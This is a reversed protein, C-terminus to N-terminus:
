AGSENWPLGQRHRTRRPNIGKKQNEIAIDLDKELHRYDKAQESTKFWQRFDDFINDPWPNKDIQSTTYKQEKLRQFGFIDKVHTIEADVVTQEALHAPIFAIGGSSGFVVDGPMCVAEGIRVPRNYGAMLYDRIPSPHSGRYYIQLNPIDQIQDVDRIGGWVIAGGGQTRNAVATSLNGGFYTGYLVKDFFDAVMVDNKTMRSVASKNYDSEFGYDLSEKKTVKNLDPRSPLCQITM